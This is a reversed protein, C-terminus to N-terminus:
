VKRRNKFVSAQLLPLCCYRGAILLLVVLLLLIMLPSASSAAKRGQVGFAANEQVVSSSPLSGKSEGKAGKGTSDVQDCIPSHSAVHCVVKLTNIALVLAPLLLLLTAPSVQLSIFGKRSIAKTWEDLSHRFFEGLQSVKKLSASTAPHASGDHM